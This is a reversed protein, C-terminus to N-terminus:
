EDPPCIRHLVFHPGAQHLSRVCSLQNRSDAIGRAVTNVVEERSLRHGRESWRAFLNRLRFVRHGRATGTGEKGSSGLLTGAAAAKGAAELAGATGDDIGIPGRIDGPAYVLPQRSFNSSGRQGSVGPRGVLSSLDTGRGLTSQKLRRIAERVLGDLDGTSNEESEGDAAAEEKAKNVKHQYWFAVVAGILGLVALAGRLIWVDNGHLPLWRGLLFVLTMYILLILGIVWYMLSM